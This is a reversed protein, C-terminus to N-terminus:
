TLFSKHFYALFTPCPEYVNAVTNFHHQTFILTLYALSSKSVGFLCKHVFCSLQFNSIFILQFLEFIFNAHYLCLCHSLLSLCALLDCLHKQLYALFDSLIM